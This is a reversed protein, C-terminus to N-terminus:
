KQLIDTYLNLYNQVMRERPYNEVVHRRCADAMPEKSSRIKEITNLVHEINDIDIAFGTGPAITEPIATVNNVIVPVGCSMAEITTMGFTEERSSNIFVNGTSYFKALEANDIIKGVSIIKKDIKCPIDGALAIEYDDPLKSALRNFFDINKNERWNAAAGIIRHKKGITSPYPKFVETNIGNPIVKIPYDGLFSQRIEDALWQSVAVISLNNLSKFATSKRAFNRESKSYIISRPYSKKFKCDRCSSDKWKNCKNASYYACHGTFAWCDHMTWVAPINTANLWQMLIKYNIYHGHINHLHIIEPSFRELRQILKMTAKRSHLGESDFIRSLSTHKIFDFTDGIKYSSAINCGEGRGYAIFVEGGNNLVAAGIDTMIRGPANSIEAVTNISAVRM